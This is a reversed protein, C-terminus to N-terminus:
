NSKLLAKLEKKLDRLSAKEGLVDYKEILAAYREDDQMVLKTLLSKVSRCAEIEEEFEKPQKKVRKFRAAFGGIVVGSIFTLLYYLYSWSWGVAAEEQMVKDLLEERAYGEKVEVQFAESRLVVREKRGIDFYALEIPRITFSKEGVLSFKQEWEGKFGEETLRYHKEGAESFIKVGDISLNIDRMQDFDGEGSVHVDLHVPEYAKVENKDLTVDLAFRGTMRERHDLVELKVVPLVVEKDSFAYGQVNDRGIVSNEISAKTTKRMLATLRIEKQGAKKPFLVYRYTSIRKADKINEIEGLSLMRYEDTEGEPTFEIVYLYAKDSFNCTYEIEVAENVYVSSKNTKLSWVYPENGHVLSTIFLFIVGWISGRNQRM